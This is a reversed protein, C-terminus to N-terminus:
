QPSPSGQQSIASFPFEVVFAIGGLESADIRVTARHDGAIGAVLALGLGSGGTARARSGDLRVFRDFLRVRDSESIGPGDDAIRFVIADATPRLSVRAQTAGHMAANDLLNRFLRAIASPDVRLQVPAIDGQDLVFTPHRLRLERCEQRVLEDVDALVRHAPAVGADQRALMLLDDILRSTRDVQGLAVELAADSQEPSRMAVELTARIGTLPSRLEHAADSVFRRQSDAASEVRDVAHNLSAALGRLESGAPPLPVRRGLDTATISDLEARMRDVPRLARRVIWRTAFESFLAAVAVAAFLWLLQGQLHGWWSEPQRVVVLSGCAAQESCKTLGFAWTENDVDLDTLQVDLDGLSALDLQEDIVTQVLDSDLGEAVFQVDGNATLLLVKEFDALEPLEFGEGDFSGSIADDIREALAFAKEDLEANSRRWTETVVLLGVTATLPVVLLTTM